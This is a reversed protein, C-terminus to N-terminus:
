RIKFFTFKLKRYKPNLNQSGAIVDPYRFNAHLRYFFLKFSTPSVITQSFGIDYSENKLPM